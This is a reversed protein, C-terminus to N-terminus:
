VAVLNELKKFVDFFQDALTTALEAWVDKSSVATRHEDCLITWEIAFFARILEEQALDRIGMLHFVDAGDDQHHMCGTACCLFRMERDNLFESMQNAGFMPYFGHHRLEFDGTEDIDVVCIASFLNEENTWLREFCPISCLRFRLVDHLSGAEFIEKEM